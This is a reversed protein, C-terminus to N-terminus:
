TFCNLHKVRGISMTQLGRDLREWILEGKQWGYWTYDPRSYGLGVFGCHNLVVCFDQM